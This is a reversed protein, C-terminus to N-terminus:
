YFITPVPLFVNYIVAMHGCSRCNYIYALQWACSIRDYSRPPPATHCKIVVPLVKHIIFCVEHLELHDSWITMLYDITVWCLDIVKM